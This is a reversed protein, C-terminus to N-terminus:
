STVTPGSSRASTTFPRYKFRLLPRELLYYSLAAVAASGALSLGLMPLFPVPGFWDNLRFIVAIHWLFIGYSVLGIWAIMPHALLRRPLGGEEGGFVAPAILLLAAFGFGVYQLALDTTGLFFSFDGVREAVAAYLAFGGLWLLGPHRGIWRAAVTPRDNAEAAVSLIALSMGLAFWLAFGIATGGLISTLDSPFALRLATSVASLGALLSLEILVWSRVSRGKAIRDTAWAFLPLLVYFTAEVALSWTQFLQCGALQMTCNGDGVFPMTQLLGYQALANPASLEIAGSLVLLVTLCLWYAPVIRLFRRKAYTAAPPATAGGLRHAVFPRYLLFGSILFFITVGFSLNFLLKTAANSGIPSVGLVHVVLIMGVALARLGDFLPFRPNNPPPAVADPVAASGAGASM